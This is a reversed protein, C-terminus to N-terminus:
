AIGQIQWCCSCFFSYSFPFPMQLKMRFLFHWIGLFAVVLLSKPNVVAGVLGGLVGAVPSSSEAKAPGGGRLRM